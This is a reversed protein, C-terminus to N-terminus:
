GSGEGLAFVTLVAKHDSTWENEGHGPIPRPEGVVLEESGLFEVGERPRFYVFDIRDMPERRGENEVFVPSWTVGPRDKPDPHVVRFSDVMGGVETPEVSTPWRVLGQGCHEGELGDVWDLHSPANFDGVLFVPREGKLDQGMAEVVEKVQGTRGSKGERVLVEEVTMKDFCFDYPGYPDYGLHVIWVVVERGGVDVRVWGAREGAATGSDVIPYRSVAGVSMPGQWSYWGLAEGLRTAHGGTTEQLGVVDAGSGALFRLQKEHFGSVQTGGHWLNWSMVRLEEVLVGEAPKVPIVVRMRASSEGVVVEVVFEGTGVEGATGSVVGGRSVSVWEDGGVKSFVGEGKGGGARFGGVKIEFREGVRVNRSVVDEVVFRVPGEAFAVSVNVPEALWEYGDRALFFATYMGPTLTGAEVQVTGNGSKAYSWTLSEEVFKEEVPGGHSARYVSVWNKENSEPTSYAFTLQPEDPLFSLTGARCTALLLPTISLRM